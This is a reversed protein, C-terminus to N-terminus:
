AAAVAAPLGRRKNVPPVRDANRVTLRAFLKTAVIQAEVDIEAVSRKVNGESLSIKLVRKASAAVADTVQAATLGKGLLCDVLPELIYGADERAVFLALKEQNYTKVVPTQTKMAPSIRRASYKNLTFVTLRYARNVDITSLPM